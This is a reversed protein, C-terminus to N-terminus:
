FLSFHSGDSDWLHGGGEGPCRFVPMEVLCIQLQNVLVRPIGFISEVRLFLPLSNNQPSIRNFHDLVSFCVVNQKQM